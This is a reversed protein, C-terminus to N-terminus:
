FKWFAPLFYRLMFKFDQRHYCLRFVQLQLIMEQGFGYWGRKSLAHCHRSEWMSCNLLHCKRVNGMLRTNGDQWMKCCFEFEEYCKLNWFWIHHYLIASWDWWSLSVPYSGRSGLWPRAPMRPPCLYEACLWTEWRERSISGVIGWLLGTPDALLFRQKFKICWDVHYASQLSDYWLTTRWTRLSPLPTGSIRWVPVTHSSRALFMSAEELRDTRWERQLDLRLVQLRFM